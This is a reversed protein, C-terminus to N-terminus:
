TETTTTTTTGFSIRGLNLESMIILEGQTRHISIPNYCFETLGTDEPRFFIWQM